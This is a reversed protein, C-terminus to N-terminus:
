FNLYQHHPHHFQSMQIIPNPLLLLCSNWFMPVNYTLTTLISSTITPPLISSNNFVSTLCTDSPFFTGASTAGSARPEEVSADLNERSAKFKKKMRESHKKSIKRKKKSTSVSAGLLADALCKEMFKVVDDLSYPKSFIPFYNLPIRRNRIAEKSVEASPSIVETIIKMNKMSTTNLWEEFTPKMGETFQDDTLSDVLQSEMLIDSILWGLPIYSKTRKSGNITNRMTDRLNQFLLALLNVKKGFKIYYLIYQQDGNIYDSSNTTPRPNVCGLLIRAWVKIHPLVDKIKISHKGSSFIVKSMETINSEKEVMQECRIGFGDHGILKAILKESIVIKKGFLFSTVQFLSSKAHIWLEKVM